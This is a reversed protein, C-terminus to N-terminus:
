DDRNQVSYRTVAVGEIVEIDAVFEKALADTEDDTPRWPGHAKYFAVYVQEPEGANDAHMSMTIRRMSILFSRPHITLYGSRVEFGNREGAAEIAAKVQNTARPAEIEVDFSVTPLNDYPLVWAADCGIALVAIVLVLPKLKLRM